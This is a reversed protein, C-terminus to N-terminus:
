TGTDNQQKASIRARKVAKRVVRVPLAHYRATIEASVDPEFGALETLRGFMIALESDAVQPLASVESPGIVLTFEGRERISSTLNTYEVLEENFKTMERCVIIIRDSWYNSMDGLTRSIRHPSEFVVVLGQENAAREFWEDRAVGSAPPFGMFTYTDATLGSVSLATAVASPGPIPTVKVGADRAARVLRAGPDSIAPTGADSVLAVSEGAILRAVLRPAETAENHERVSRLPRRIEYHALLKSTRRTDEAAILDVERLTRLARLTIDELNGIPTGVVYLTGSM